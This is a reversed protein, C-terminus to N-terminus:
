IAVYAPSTEENSLFYSTAEVLSGDEDEDSSSSIEEDSSVMRPLCDDESLEGSTTHLKIQKLLEKNAVDFLSDVLEDDAVQEFARKTLEEFHTATTVNVKMFDEVQQAIDQRVRKRRCNKAKTSSKYKTHLADRLSQGIKERALHDGVEYWVGSKQKVFGGLPSAERVAAMIQSVLISKELKTKTQAYQDLHSAILARYRQNGAHNLAYKGRACIVDFPGPQFNSALTQRSM